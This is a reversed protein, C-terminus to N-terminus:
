PKLRKRRKIGSEARDLWEPLGGLIADTQAEVRGRLRWYTAWHMGRPKPGMPTLIGPKWELSERLSDTARIARFRKNEHQSEYRLGICGRCALRKGDVYLAQRRSECEPCCMWRRHGGYHLPTTAILVVWASLGCVVIGFGPAEIFLQVPKLEMTFRDAHTLRVVPLSAISPKGGRWGHNGSLIGGM